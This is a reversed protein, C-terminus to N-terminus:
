RDDACVLKDRGRGRAGSSGRRGGKWKPGQEMCFRKQPKVSLGPAAKVGHDGIRGISEVFVAGCLLALKAFPTTPHPAYRWREVSMSTRRQGPESGQRNVLERLELREEVFPSPLQPGPEYRPRM